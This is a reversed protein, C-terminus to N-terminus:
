YKCPGFHELFYFKIFRICASQLLGNNVIINYNYQDSNYFGSHSQGYVDTSYKEPVYIQLVMYKSCLIQFIVFRM